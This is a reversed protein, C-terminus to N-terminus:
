SHRLQEKQYNRLVTAIDPIWNKDSKKMGNIITMRQGMDAGLSRVKAEGNNENIIENVDQIRICV